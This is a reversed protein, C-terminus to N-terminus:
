LDCRYLHYIWLGPESRGSELAQTKEVIACELPKRSLVNKKGLYQGSRMQRRGDGNEEGAQLNLM